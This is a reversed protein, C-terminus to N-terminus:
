VPIVCLVGPLQEDPHPALLFGLDGYFLNPRVDDYSL